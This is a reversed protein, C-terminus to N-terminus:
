KERSSTSRDSREVGGAGVSFVVLSNYRNSISVSNVGFYQILTNKIGRRTVEAGTKELEQVKKKLTENEADVASLGARAEDLRKELFERDEKQKEKWASLGEFREKMTLNTQKLAETPNVSLHKHSACAHISLFSALVDRM